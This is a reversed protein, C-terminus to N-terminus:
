KSEGIFSLRSQLQDIDGQIIDAIAEGIIVTPDRTPNKADAPIETRRLVRDRAQRMSVIQSEVVLQCIADVARGLAVPNIMHPDTGSALLVLKFQVEINDRLEQDM